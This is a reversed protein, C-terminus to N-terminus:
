HERAFINAQTCFLRSRCHHIMAVYKQLLCRKGEKKEFVGVQDPARNFGYKM